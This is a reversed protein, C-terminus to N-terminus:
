CVMPGTYLVIAIVEAKLLKANKTLTLELLDDIAPIRRNCRLENKDCTAKQAVIDWERRPCTQIETYNLTTFRIDCGPQICHEMEM